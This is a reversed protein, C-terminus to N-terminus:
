LRCVPSTNRDTNKCDSSFWNDVWCKRVGRPQTETIKPPLTTATMTELSIYINQRINKWFKVTQMTIAYNIM